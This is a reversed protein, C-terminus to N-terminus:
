PASGPEEVRPLLLCSAHAADHLVTQRAPRGEGAGVRAPPTAVNGNRDIRPLNSSSIELRLRHGAPIRIGVAGLDLRLRLPEEPAIWQPSATGGRSRCRLAGECLSWAVGDVDVEVLKAVFDTDVANSRCVLALSVPGILLCPQELPEGTYSLVDARAEVDRQDVSGSEQWRGFGRSPVPDAPDYVYRDPPEDPAPAQEDLRGDGVLTQARGGSRLHLQWPRAEAVPWGSLQRWGGTREVFVRPQAAAAAADRRRECFDGLARALSAGFGDRRRIRAGGAARPVLWPGIQLEPQPTGASSAREVLEAYDALLGRLSPDYWGGLLLVPPPREPLGPRRAEWYADATPHDLWERYWDVRRRTVRDAEYVPQFFTGREADLRAEPVPDRESLTAAFRLADALAFAGGPYLAARPDRAALGIVAAQVREGARELLAWAAHGGYRLGALAVPGGFWPQKEIWELTAEGDEGEHRFPEFEGESRGRGRCEQVVVRLGDEALLRALLLAPQRPAHAPLVTRILLTVADGAGVPRAVSTTLRVGDRMALWDTELEARYRRAPLSWLRRILGLIM